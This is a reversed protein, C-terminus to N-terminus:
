SSFLRLSTYGQAQDLILDTDMLGSSTLPYNARELAARILSKASDKDAFVNDM